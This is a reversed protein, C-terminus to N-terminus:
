EVRSCVYSMYMHICFAPWDDSIKKGIKANSRGFWIQDSLNVFTFTLSQMIPFCIDPCNEITIMIVVIGKLSSKLM